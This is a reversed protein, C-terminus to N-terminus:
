QKKNLRKRFYLEQAIAFINSTTWYIAIAASISYAIFFVVVPFVYRMQIHMSRALDAKFSRDSPDHKPAPMSYRIQFFNTISALFALFISKSTVDVFGLFITNVQEPKPIFSYLLDTQIVPFGKLFIFYLAFIIPLQIFILLISSIYLKLLEEAQKKQDTKYKEKLEKLQPEIEKMKMQTVVAKKSLPLLITKVVITFLIVAVGADAWPLVDMLFVLGNYLPQFVILNFTYSIM